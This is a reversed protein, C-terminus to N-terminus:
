LKEGCQLMQAGYYPNRIAGPSQLWKGNAMSCFYTEVGQPKKKEAWKVMIESLTGFAARAAKIDQAKQLQAVAASLSKQEEGKLSKAVKQLAETAGKVQATSDSALEKQIILYHSLAGELGQEANAAQTFAVTATLIAGVTLILSIQARM